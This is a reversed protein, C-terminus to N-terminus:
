CKFTKWVKQAHKYDNDSRKTNRFASNFSENSPLQIEKFKDFSDMYEYPYVSKRLLLKFNDISNNALKYICNFKRKLLQIDHNTRKLCSKCKSIINTDNHSFKIQQNSKNKCDCEFLTSLNNLYTDLSRTLLRNTDVFRIKHKITKIIPMDNQDVKGKAIQTEAITFSFTM